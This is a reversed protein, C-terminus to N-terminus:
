KSQLHPPPSGQRLWPGILRPARHPSGCLQKCSSTTTKEKKKGEKTPNWWPCRLLTPPAVDCCLPRPWAQVFRLIPGTSTLVARAGRPGLFSDTRGLARLLSEESPFESSQLRAAGRGSRDVDVGNQLPKLSPQTPPNCCASCLGSNVALQTFDVLIGLESSHMSEFHPVAHAVTM